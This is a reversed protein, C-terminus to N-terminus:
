LFCIELLCCIQGKDDKNYEGKQCFMNKGKGGCLLVKGNVFNTTHTYTGVPLDSLRRHIGNGYVEVSHRSKLGGTFLLISETCSFQDLTPSWKCSKLQTVTPGRAVYGTM